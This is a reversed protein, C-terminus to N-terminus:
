DEVVFECKQASQRAQRFQKLVGSNNPDLLFEQCISVLHIGRASEADPNQQPELAQCVLIADEVVEADTVPVRFEFTKFGGFDYHYGEVVNSVARKTEEYTMGNTLIRDVLPRLEKPKSEAVKALEYCKSKGLKEMTGSDIKGNLARQIRLLSFVATHKITCEADIWADFSPYPKGAASRYQRWYGKEQIRFIVNTIRMWVAEQEVVTKNLWAVDKLLQERLRFAEAEVEAKDAVRTIGGM